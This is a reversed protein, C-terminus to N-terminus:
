RLRDAGTATMKQRSQWATIPDPTAAAWLAAGMLVVLVAATGGDAAGGALAGGSLAVGPVTVGPVSLGPVSLGPVSLGPVVGGAGCRGRDRCCGRGARDHVRRGRGGGHGRGLQGGEDVTEPTVHGLGLRDAVVQRGSGRGVRGSGPLRQGGTGVGDQDLRGGGLQLRRRVPRRRLLAEGLGAVGDGLYGDGEIQSFLDGVRARGNHTREAIPRREQRSNEVACLPVGDPGFRFQSPRGRGGILPALVGVAQDLGAGGLQLRGGDLGFERGPGLRRDGWRYGGAVGGVRRCGGAVRAVGRRDRGAQQGLFRGGDEPGRHQVSLSNTPQNAADPLRGLRM